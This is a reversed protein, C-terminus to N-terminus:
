VSFKVLFADDFLARGTTASASSANNLQRSCDVSPGRERRVM